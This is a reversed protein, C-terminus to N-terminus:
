MFHSPPILLLDDDSLSTVRISLFPLGRMKLSWRDDRHNGSPDLDIDGNQKNDSIITHEGRLYEQTQVRKKGKPTTVDFHVATIITEPLEIDFTQM